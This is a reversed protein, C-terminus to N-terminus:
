KMEHLYQFLKVKEKGKSESFLRDFVLAKKLAKKLDRNIVSRELHNIARHAKKLRNLSIDMAKATKRLLKDVRGSM